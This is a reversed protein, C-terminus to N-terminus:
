VKARGYSFKSRFNYYFESKLPFILFVYMKRGNECFCSKGRGYRTCKGRGEKLLSRVVQLLSAKSMAQAM